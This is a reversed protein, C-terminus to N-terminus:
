CAHRRRRRGLARACRARAARGVRAPPQHRRHREVVRDRHELQVLAARVSVIRRLAGSASSPQGSSTSYSRSERGSRRLGARLDRVAEPEVEIRLKRVKKRDGGDLEYPVKRDLKIRM